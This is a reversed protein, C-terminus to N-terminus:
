FLDWDDIDSTTNKGINEENWAIAEDRTKVICDKYPAFDSMLWRWLVDHSPNDNTQHNYPTVRGNRGIPPQGNAFEVNLPIPCIRKKPTFIRTNGNYQLDCQYRELAKRVIYNGLGGGSKASYAATRIEKITVNQGIHESLYLDAKEIYYPANGDLYERTLAKTNHPQVAKRKDDYKM